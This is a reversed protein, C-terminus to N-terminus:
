FYSKINSQSLTAFDNPKTNYPDTEMDVIVEENNEKFNDSSDLPNPATHTNNPSFINDQPTQEPTEQKIIKKLRSLLNDDEYKANNTLVPSINAISMTYENMISECISDM